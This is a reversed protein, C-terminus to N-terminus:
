NTVDFNILPETFITMFRDGSCQVKERDKYVLYCVANIRFEQFRRAFKVNKGMQTVNSFLIM